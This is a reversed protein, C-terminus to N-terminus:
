HHEEILSLSEKEFKLAEKRNGLYRPVGGLAMFGGIPNEHYGVILGGYCNNAHCGSLLTSNNTILINTPRVLIEVGNKLFRGRSIVINSPPQFEIELLIKRHAERVTLTTGVLQIDWTSTSYYLQNNKIHLIPQNFEDFIVINLLLHGDALIIGILPTGDVSIPVMATGYGKDFCTFSNGGIEVKAEKGSFHLNYPKSVGERLNYPNLNAQSVIEKPLLGGTKERHHQDCLLTIEDAQHRKVKAWEAMHEYEYLPMGCIVCGFGCRQRVERQIPLPINRSNCEQEIEM